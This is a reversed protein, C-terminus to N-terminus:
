QRKEGTVRIERMRQKVKDYEAAMLATKEADKKWLNKSEGPDAALDYLERRGENSVILKLDGVILGRRSDNYPGAAMDIVIPRAQPNDLDSLLSQGSVFDDGGAPAPLKMVELLTPLVDIASRREQIRRPTLGPVHAILPIRVLPEWIEFGHRWMKNEGFSEGHDSTVVIATKEQVGLQELKQFIRGIQYDVFAVEGDYLDRQTRGFSPIEDHKLYDAHPDLYHVWLFFRRSTNAPDSLLRLAVNTLKDGSISNELGATGGASPVSSMDVTDFGRDFGAFNGLHEYAHAAMTRLGARHLRESLFTDRKSFRNFHGWNRDTESSYKGILMPGLSKGTYSSLAYAREFFLSRAALKDLNPTINRAYGGFGTEARMTDVTILVLNLNDPIASTVTAPAAVAATAKPPVPATADQGSCDEDVGNGPTDEGGPNIDSRADNCDGGGFTRSVGDSDRDFIRQWLVLASKSIRTDREISAVSEADADLATAASRTTAAIVTAALIVGGIMPAAPWPRVARAAIETALAGVAGASALAIPIDLHLEERKLVAWIELFGGDGSVTGHLIGFGLSLLVFLGAAIGWVASRGSPWRTAIITAFLSGGVLVSAIAAAHNAANDASFSARFVHALSTVVVFWGAFAVGARGADLGRPRLSRWAVSAAAAVLTLWLVVLGLGIRPTSTADLFAVTVSLPLAGVTALVLARCM